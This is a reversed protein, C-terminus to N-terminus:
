QGGDKVVVFSKLISSFVYALGVTRWGEGRFLIAPM